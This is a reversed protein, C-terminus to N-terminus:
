GSVRIPVSGNQFMYSRLANVVAQPDGGNVNIVVSQYKKENSAATGLISRDAAVMQNGVELGANSVDLLDQNLSAVTIGATGSILDAAVQSGAVPGLDMLQALGARSLGMAALTKLKGAFEKAKAIQEAFQQTYTRRQSSAATVATEATAVRTKAAALQEESATQSDTLKKLDAYADARETLADKYKDERQQADDVAGRLSVYGAVSSAIGQAYETLAERASKIGEVFKKHREKAKDVAANTRELSKRYEENYKQLEALNRSAVPGVYTQLTKQTLIFQNTKGNLKDVEEGTQKYTNKLKMWVGAGIIATAIGVGTAIQVATFSTALAMNIGTTIVSIAKWANMAVNAGVIAAAFLGVATALGAVLGANAQAFNGLRTLFDALKEAVPLLAAGISEKAENLSITMRKFGGQATNAAAQSAGKFNNNLLTLVDDFSAGDKIMKKLEPSLTGLAKTNGNFGRSLADATSQLDRGTAASVDLAVNLLSQAKTLSGTGVVLSQLAPRLEDDATASSMSLRTIFDENAKIAENTAGTTTKIQRALAQQAAQDEMAAKVAFGAAATVGALAAAAPVAAKRLAFQAKESNTELSQFKKIAEEVGKGNWESVIPIRIM